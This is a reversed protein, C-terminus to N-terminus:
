TTPPVRGGGVLSESQHQRGRLLGCHCALVVVDGLPHAARCPSVLIAGAPRRTALDPPVSPPLQLKLLLLTLMIRFGQEEAQDLIVDRVAITSNIWLESGELLMCGSGEEEEEEEEEYEEEYEEEEM